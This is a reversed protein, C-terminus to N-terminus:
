RLFPNKAKEEAVTTSPGHGPYLITEDPLTLVQTQISHILLGLDGGQQDTRGIGHYFIVDGCFACKLEASYYIVSGATHGPALHVIFEHEGLFLHQGASILQNPEPIDINKGLFHRAGGGNRWLGLDDKHLSVTKISSLTKELYPLGYYHDFHAHTIWINELNLSKEQIFQALLDPDLPPDIIVAARTQDDFLLYVNNNLKGLVFTKIQLTM